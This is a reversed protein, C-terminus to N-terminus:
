ITLNDGERVADRFNLDPSFSPIMKESPQRTRGLHQKSRYFVGFNPIKVVQGSAVAEVITAFIEDYATSLDYSVSEPTKGKKKAITEILEQKNM